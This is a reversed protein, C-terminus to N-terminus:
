FPMNMLKLIKLVVLSAKSTKVNCKHPKQLKPVVAVM